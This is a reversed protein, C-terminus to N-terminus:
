FAKLSKIQNLNVIEIHGEENVRLELVVSEGTVSKGLSQFKKKAQAEIAEKL